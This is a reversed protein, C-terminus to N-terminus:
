SKGERILYITGDDDVEFSFNTVDNITAVQKGGLTATGDRLVEFANSRQDDSTGKGNGIVLLADDKIANCYGLVTQESAGSKLYKGHVLSNDHNSTSHAGGVVSGQKNAYTKYGFAVAYNGLANTEFGFAVSGIGDAKSGQAQVSGKKSGVELPFQSMPVAFDSTSGDSFTMRYVYNGDGDSEVYEISQITAGDRGKVHGISKRLLGESGFKMYLDGDAGLEFDPVKDDKPYVVVLEDDEVTIFYHGRSVMMVADKGDKGDAGTNGTAQGVDVGGIYWRGNEIYPTLGNTGNKGDEGQFGRPVFFEHESKDSFVMAYWIGTENRAREVIDDVTYRSTGDNGDKGKPATFRGRTESGDANKFVIMYHAGDNDSYMYEVRDFTSSTDEALTRNRTITYWTVKSGDDVCLKMGFHYVSGSEGIEVASEAAAKASDYDSFMVRADIPVPKIPKISSIINTTSVKKEDVIRGM